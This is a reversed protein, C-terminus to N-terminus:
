SLCHVEWCGLDPDTKGSPSTPPRPRPPASLTGLLHRGIGRSEAQSRTINERPDQRTARFPLWAAKPPPSRLNTGGDESPFPREPGQDGGHLLYPSPIGVRGLHRLPSAGSRTLNPGCEGSVQQHIGPPIEFVFGPCTQPPVPSNVGVGSGLFHMRLGKVEMILDRSQKPPEQQDGWHLHGSKALCPM